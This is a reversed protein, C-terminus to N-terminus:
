QDGKRPPKIDTGVQSVGHRAEHERVDRRGDLLEGTIPSTFAPQDTMLM